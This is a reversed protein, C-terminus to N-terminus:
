CPNIIKRERNQNFSCERVMQRTQGHNPLGLLCSLSYLQYSWQKELVSFLVFDFCVCSDDCSHEKAFYSNEVSSVEGRRSPYSLFFAEKVVHNFLLPGLNFDHEM